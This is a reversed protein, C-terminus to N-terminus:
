QIITCNHIFSANLSSTSEECGAKLIPFNPLQRPGELWLSRMTRDCCLLVEIPIKIYAVLTCKYKKSKIMFWALTEYYPDKAGYTTQTALPGVPGFVAGSITGLGHIAAM